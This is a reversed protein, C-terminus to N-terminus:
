RGFFQADVARQLLDPLPGAHAWDGALLSGLQGDLARATSDPDAGRTLLAELHTRLLAVLRLMVGEADAASMRTVRNCAQVFQPGLGTIRSRQTVKTWCRDVDSGTINLYTPSGGPPRRDRLDRLVRQLGAPGAEGSLRRLTAEDTVGADGLRGLVRRALPSPSAAAPHGAADDTPTRDTESEM